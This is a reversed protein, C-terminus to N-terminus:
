WVFTYFVFELIASEDVLGLLTIATSKKAQGSALRLRELANIADRASGQSVRVVADLGEVDYPISESSCIRELHKVLLDRPLAPFFLQMCRSRVTELIKSAETTALLFVVSHPPEELIKLFANFAAKSLMHAEDILYVKKRGMQPLLTASDIILRVNDVGTHSAADIEIFDPHQGLAMAKCSFCELCPIAISQPQKQFDPLKACNLACAFIRATTTKGCGRQGALLYVPFITGKYLSNKLVRVVLEQGVLEDFTKSRWKRALNIHETTM